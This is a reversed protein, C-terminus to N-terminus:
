LNCGWQTTITSLPLAEPILHGQWLWDLITGSTVLGAAIGVAVWAANAFSKRM